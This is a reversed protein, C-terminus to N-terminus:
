PRNQVREAELEAPSAGTRESVGPNSTGFGRTSAIKDSNVGQAILSAKIRDARQESLRQNDLTVFRGSLASHAGGDVSLGLKYSGTASLNLKGSSSAGAGLTIDFVGNTTTVMDTETYIATANGNQYVSAVIAHSGNAITSGDHNTLRGKVSLTSSASTQANAADGVISSAFSLFATLMISATYFTHKM